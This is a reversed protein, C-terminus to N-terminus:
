VASWLQRVAAAMDPVFFIGFVCVVADFGARAFSLDLLDGRRFEANRLGRAAAKERALALLNEALDVGLVFGEPGVAQAAPIASAGSGCCLDLVRDGARLHLREITRGGFQAWFSNAPDDYRDAAANYTATAKARAEDATTMSRFGLPNVPRFDELGSPAAPYLPHTGTRGSRKASRRARAGEPAEPSVFEWTSSNALVAERSGAVVVASQSVSAPARRRGGIVAASTPPWSVGPPAKPTAM